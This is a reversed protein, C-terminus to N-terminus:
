LSSPHFAPAERWFGMKQQTKDSGVVVIWYGTKLRSIGCEWKEDECKNIGIIYSRFDYLHSQLVKILIALCLQSVLGQIDYWSPFRWWLFKVYFPFYWLLWKRPTASNSKRLFPLQPQFYQTWNLMDFLWILRKDDIM